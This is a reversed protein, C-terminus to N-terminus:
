GPPWALQRGGLLHYHLHLVSQGGWEGCNNVLRYGKDAIGLERALKAATTQICGLLEVNENSAQDLSVIHERPILLIHVPAAPNIDKIAVIREDEYVLEAPIERNVIKCFLCDSKNLNEGGDIM